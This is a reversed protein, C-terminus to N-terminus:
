FRVPTRAIQESQWTGLSQVCLIARLLLADSSTQPLSVPRISVFALNSALRIRSAVSSHSRIFVDCDRSHRLQWENSPMSARLCLESACFFWVWAWASPLVQM